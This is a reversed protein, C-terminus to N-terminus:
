FLETPPSEEFDINGILISFVVILLVVAIVAIITWLLQKKAEKRKGEDEASALRFGVYIAFVIAAMGLLALLSTMVIQITRIVEHIVGETPGGEGEVPRIGSYDSIRMAMKAM